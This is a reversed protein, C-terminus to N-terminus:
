NDWVGFAVFRLIATADASDVHGNLDADGNKMGQETLNQLRAVHRLVATADATDVINNVDADGRLASGSGGYVAHVDTNATINAFSTSWGSFTMGDHSPASPATAAKGREVVQYKLITGDFDIFRVLFKVTSTEAWVATLTTDGTIGDIKGGEAYITATGNATYRWGVFTHGEYTPVENSITFTCGPIAKGDAPVPLRLNAVGDNYKVVYGDEDFDPIGNNNQDPSFSATFTVSERIVQNKPDAPTWGYFVYGEDAVPTPVNQVPTGSKVMETFTKATRGNLSLQGGDTAEYTVVIDIPMEGFYATYTTDNAIFKGEYPATPAWKSVGWGAQLVDTAVPPEPEFGGNGDVNKAVRYVKTAGDLKGGSNGAQYLIVFESPNIVHQVHTPYQGEHILWVDRGNENWPAHNWNYYLASNKLDADSEFTGHYGGDACAPGQQTQTYYIEERATTQGMSLGIGMHASLGDWKYYMGEYVSGTEEDETYLDYPYNMVSGDTGILLGKDHSYCYACYGMDAGVLGGIINLGGVASLEKAPEYAKAATYSDLIYYANIGVLGGNYGYCFDQVVDYCYAAWGIRTEADFLPYVLEGYYDYYFQAGYWDVDVTNTNYAVNGTASCGQIYGGNQGVLGGVVVWGDVDASSSSDYIYGANLAVLGGVYIGANQWFTEEPTAYMYSLVIGGSVHCNEITGYNVACFGACYAMGYVTPAVITLNKVVADQGITSFFAANALEPNQIDVGSIKYGAGEFVGYFDIPTWASSLVIDNALRYYGSQGAIARLEAETTILNVNDVITAQPKIATRSHEEVGNVKGFYGSELTVKSLDAQTMEKIEDHTKGRFDYQPVNSNDFKAGIDSMEKVAGARTTGGSFGILESGNTSNNISIAGVPLATLMMVASMVIALIRKM